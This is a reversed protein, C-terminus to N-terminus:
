NLARPVYKTVAQGPSFGASRGFNAFSNPRERHSVEYISFYIEVQVNLGRWSLSRSLKELLFFQSSCLQYIMEIRSMKQDSCSIESLPRLRLPMVGIDRAGVAGDHISINIVDICLPITPTLTKSVMSMHVHREGGTQLELNYPSFSTNQYRWMSVHAANPIFFVLNSNLKTIQFM